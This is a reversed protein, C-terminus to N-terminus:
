TIIKLSHAARTHGIGRGIGIRPWCNNGEEGVRRSGRKMKMKKVDVEQQWQQQAEEQQATTNQLQCLDRAEREASIPLHQPALQFQM